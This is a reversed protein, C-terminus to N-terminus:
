QILLLLYQLLMNTRMHCLTGASHKTVLTVMLTSDM